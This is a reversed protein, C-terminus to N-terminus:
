RKEDHRRRRLRRRSTTTSSSSLVLTGNAVSHALDVWYQRTLKRFNYETPDKQYILRDYEAELFEPSLNDYNDIWTVPLDALTRKAWGDTNKYKSNRELVPIIGLYMSEWHRYCDLGLGNPSMLFKSDLMERYYCGKINVDGKGDKEHCLKTGNKGDDAYNNYSNVMDINREKKFRAMIPYMASRRGGRDMMNIMLLATRNPSYVKSYNILTNQRGPSLGLTISLVKPHDYIQFQNTFVGLTDPHNIYDFIMQETCGEKGWDKVLQGFRGTLGNMQTSFAGFDQNLKSLLVHRLRPKTNNAKINEQRYNTFLKTPKCLSGDFRVFQVKDIQDVDDNLTKQNKTIQYFQFFEFWRSYKGKSRRERNWDVISDDNVLLNMQENHYKYFAEEAEWKDQETMEALPKRQQITKISEDTSIKKTAARTKNNNIVQTTSESSEPQPSSPTIEQTTETTQVIEPTDQKPEPDATDAKTEQDIDNDTQPKDTNTTEPQEQSTEEVKLETTEIASQEEKRLEEEALDAETDTEEESADEGSTKEDVIKRQHLTQNFAVSHMTAMLVTKNGITRNVVEIQRARSVSGDDKAYSIASVFEQHFYVAGQAAFMVAIVAATVHKIGMMM